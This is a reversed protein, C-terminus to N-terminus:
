ETTRGTASKNKRQTEERGGVLMDFYLTSFTSYLLFTMHNPQLPQYIRDSRQDFARRRCSQLLVEKLCWVADMELLFDCASVPQM